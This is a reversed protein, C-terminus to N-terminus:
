VTQDQASIAEIEVPSIPAVLELHARGGVIAAVGDGRGPVESGTGCGLYNVQAEVTTPYGVQITKEAMANLCGVPSQPVDQRGLGAYTLWPLFVPSFGGVVGSILSALAIAALVISTSLFFGSLFRSRPM